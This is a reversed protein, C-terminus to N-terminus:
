LHMFAVVVSFKVTVKTIQIIDSGQGINTNLLFSKM